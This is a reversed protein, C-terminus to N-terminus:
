NAFLKWNMDFAAKQMKYMEPHHIRIGTVEESDFYSIYNEYLFCITKFEHEKPLLRTERCSKKDKKKFDRALPTDQMLLRTWIKMSIRENTWDEERKADLITYLYDLHLWGMLEKPKARLIDEYMERYGETGRYHHIQVSKPNKQAIKLEEVVDRAIRVKEKQQYLLKNIDDVLYYTYQGQKFSTIINRKILNNLVDYMSTRKINTKRAIVSAPTPGLENLTILVDAEKDTFGLSYLNIKYM